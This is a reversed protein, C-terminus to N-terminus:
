PIGGRRRMSYLVFGIGVILLAWGWGPMRFGAEVAIGRQLSRIFGDWVLGYWYGAPQYQASLEDLANAIKTVDEPNLSVTPYESAAEM